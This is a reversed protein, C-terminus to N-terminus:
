CIRYRFKEQRERSVWQTSRCKCDWSRDRGPIPRGTKRETRGMEFKEELVLPVEAFTFVLILYVDLPEPFSM